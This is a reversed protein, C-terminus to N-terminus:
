DLFLAADSRFPKSRAPHLRKHLNAAPSTLDTEAHCEWPDCQTQRISAPVSAASGATAVVTTYSENTSIFPRFPPAFMIRM